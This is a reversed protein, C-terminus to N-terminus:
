GRKLLQKQSARESVKTNQSRNYVYISFYQKVFLNFDRTGKIDQHQIPRRTGSILHGPMNTKYGSVCGMPQLCNFVNASPVVCDVTKNIYLATFATNV